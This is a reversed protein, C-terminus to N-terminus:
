AADDAWYPYETKKTPLMYGMEEFNQKREYADKVAYMAQEISMDGKAIKDDYFSMQTKSLLENKQERTLLRKKGAVKKDLPNSSRVKLSTPAEDFAIGLEDKLGKVLFHVMVGTLSNPLHAYDTLEIDAGKIEQKQALAKVLDKIAEEVNLLITTKDDNSIPLNFKAPEETTKSSATEMSAVLEQVEQKIQTNPTM